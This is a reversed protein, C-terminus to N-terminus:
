ITSEQEEDSSGDEPMDGVTVLDPHRQLFGQLWSRGAKGTEKNFLHQIGKEEALEYAMVCIRHKSVKVGSAVIKKVRKCLEQEGRVGLLPTRGTSDSSSNLLGMKLIRRRLTTAPVNFERAAKKIGMDENRVSEIALDM